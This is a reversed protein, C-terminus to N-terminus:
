VVASTHGIMSEETAEQDVRSRCIPCTKHLRLWRDICMEHFLHSCSEIKAVMEGQQLQGLCVVCDNGEARGDRQYMYTVLFYDISSNYAVITRPPERPEPTIMRELIMSSLPENSPRHRHSDRYMSRALSLLFIIMPFGGVFLIVLAQRASRSFDDQYVVFICILWIICAWCWFKQVGTLYEVM